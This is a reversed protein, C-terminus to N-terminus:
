WIWWIWNSGVRWSQPAHNGARGTVRGPRLLRAFRSGAGEISGIMRPTARRPRNAVLAARWVAGNAGLTGVAGTKRTMRSTRLMRTKRSPPLSRTSSEFRLPIAPDRPNRPFNENQPGMSMREIGM